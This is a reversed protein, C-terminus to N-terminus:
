VLIKSITELNTPTWPRWLSCPSPTQVEINDLGTKRITPQGLTDYTLVRPPRRTRQPYINLPRPSSEEESDSDRDRGPTQGESTSPYDDQHELLNHDHQPVDLELDEEGSDHVASESDDLQCNEVEHESVQPAPNTLGRDHHHHRPFKWVLEDGDEIDSDVDQDPLLQPIQEQRDPTEKIETLCKQSLDKWLCATM